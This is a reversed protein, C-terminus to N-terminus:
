VSYITPLTLHTYSVPERYLYELAEKTFTVYNDNNIIFQNTGEKISINIGEKVESSLLEGTEINVYNSPHRNTTIKRQKTM